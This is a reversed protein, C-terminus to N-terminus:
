RINCIGTCREPYSNNILEPNVFGNHISNVCFFIQKATLNVANRWNLTNSQYIAHVKLPIKNYGQESPARGITIMRDILYGLVKREEQAWDSECRVLITGKIECHEDNRERQGLDQASKVM